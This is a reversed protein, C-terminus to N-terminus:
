AKPVAGGRSGRAAEGRRHRRPQVRLYTFGREHGVVLAARDRDVGALSSRVCSASVSATSLWATAPSAASAGIPRSASPSPTREAAVAAARRSAQSCRGGPRDGGRLRPFGLRILESHVPILRVGAKSKARTVDFYPVGDRERVNEADLDCIEGERMGSYLAAAMMWPRATASVQAGAQAVAQM